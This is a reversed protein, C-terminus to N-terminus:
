LCGLGRTSAVATGSPAVRETTVPHARDRPERDHASRACAGCCRREICLRRTAHDASTPAYCESGSEAKTGVPGRPRRVYGMMWGLFLAVAIVALTLVGMWHDRPHIKSNTTPEPLLDTIPLPADPQTQDLQQPDVQVPDVQVPDVQM